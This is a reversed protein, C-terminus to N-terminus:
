IVPQEVLKASNLIENAETEFSPWDKGPTLISVLFPNKASPIIKAKMYFFETGGEKKYNAAFVANEGTPELKIIELRYTTKTADEKLSELIQDATKEENFSLQQIFLFAVSLQQLKSKQGYFLITSEKKLTQSTIQSFINNETPQWDAPYRVKLKGDPSIFENRTTTTQDQPLLSDVSPIEMKPASINGFSTKFTRFQWYATFILLLFFVALVLLFKDFKM